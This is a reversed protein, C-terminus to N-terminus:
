KILIKVTKTGKNDTVKILRVGNDTTFRAEDSAVFSQALRGDISYVNIHATGDINNVFVENGIAYITADNSDAPAFIGSRFLM